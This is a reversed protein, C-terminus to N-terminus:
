RVAEDLLQGIAEEIVKIRMDLEESLADVDFTDKEIFYYLVRRATYDSAMEGIVERGLRLAISKLKLLMDRQNEKKYIEQNINGILESVRKLRQRSSPTNICRELEHGFRIIKEGADRAGADSLAPLPSRVRENQDKVEARFTDPSMYIEITFHAAPYYLKRPPGDPSKEMHSQVLGAEELVKLHKMVLQQSINLEKSLQLAYHREKTLKSLINRRTHNGLVGLLGDLAIGSRGADEIDM